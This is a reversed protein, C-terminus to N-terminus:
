SEKLSEVAHLLTHHAPTRSGKPDGTGYEISVAAPHDNLVDAYARTTKRRQTGSETRFHDVYYEGDTDHVDRPAIAIAMLRVEDAKADLVARIEDAVLIQGIGRRDPTFTAM